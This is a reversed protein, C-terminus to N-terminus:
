FNVITQFGVTTNTEQFSSTGFNYFTALTSFDRRVESRFAVNRNLRYTGAVTLSTRNAGVTPDYGAASADGSGFGNVVDGYAANTGSYNNSLTYLGGGNAQNNLYDVRGAFTWNAGVKESALASIGWWRADNNGDFSGNELRGATFQLNGNFDGRTYNGDIEFQDLRGLLGTTGTQPTAVHGAYGTFEFGWFEEQSYTANYIFAPESATTNAATNLNGANPNGIAASWIWVPM